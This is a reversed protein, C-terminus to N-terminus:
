LTILAKSVQLKPYNELVHEVEELRIRHSILPEINVVEKDLLKVAEDLTFPNIFSGSISLEKSFIEYPAIEVVENPGPVGFLLVQAGKGACKVANEITVKKGVCEIVVDFQSYLDSTIQSVVETAGLQTLVEHKSANIESVVISGTTYNRVLQLFLMGIFGGGVIFVRDNPRFTLKKFGHLVCSLPEVMAGQEYSMSDPLPYCNAEPATCYEGMGGNRTVGVASLDSCLHVKGSRCYKCKGCYINPDVAVRDGVKVQTVEAGIAVVEGALEHGLVVPPTVEASGPDGHYIHLDTGCIGCNKVSVLVESPAPEPIAVESLELKKTDTLVLAKM